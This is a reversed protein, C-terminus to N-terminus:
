LHLAEEIARLLTQVGEKTEDGMHGIRFTNEKIKDYGNVIEFGKHKLTTVLDAVNIGTTNNIVTITKSAHGEQAFLGFHEKAWSQVMHALEQHRKFRNDLGEKLILDMQKNLAFIQSIAPTTIPQGKHHYDLITQFDFYYGKNPVTKARDLAKQSVSFVTLGPPVALAKQVGALCVDIGLDDVPIKVAGLSSVADVLFVVDPYKKIVAAIDALPNMVGTSSENHVLTVTDYKGTALAKDVDHAKVAQGWEYDIRDAEKGNLIAMEHWRNSFGGNCLALLRKNVCNRVAGEMIGTASSTHILVPNKTYFLQQLKQTLDRLLVAFEPGRHNIMQRSMEALVEARVDVPGPIFLRNAM